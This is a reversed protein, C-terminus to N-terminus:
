LVFKVKSEVESIRKGLDSELKKYKALLESYKSM